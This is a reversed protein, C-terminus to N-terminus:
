RWVLSWWNLLSQLLPSHPRAPTRYGGQSGDGATPASDNSQTYEGGDGDPSTLSLHNRGLDSGSGIASQEQQYNPPSPKGYAKQDPLLGVIGWLAVSLVILNRPVRRPFM